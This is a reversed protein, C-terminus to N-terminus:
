PAGEGPDNRGRCSSFLRRAHCFCNVSEGGFSGILVACASSAFTLSMMTLTRPRGEDNLLAGASWISCLVDISNASSVELM